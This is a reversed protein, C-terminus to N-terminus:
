KEYIWAKASFDQSAQGYEAIIRSGVPFEPNVEKSNEFRHLVVLGYNKWERIVMQEGKPHNYGRTNSQNLVTKGNRIIELAQIYFEIGEEVLRWQEKSLDYIDGSLCMRGLFASIMSYYIREDSDGSRLVVWIQSQEPRIVRHLNAAILPIAKTEHADSFSALSVLQMM